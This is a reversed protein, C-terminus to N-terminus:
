WLTLGQDLAFFFLTIILMDHNNHLFVPIRLLNRTFTGWIAKVMEGIKSTINQLSEQSEGLKQEASALRTKWSDEQDELAKKM